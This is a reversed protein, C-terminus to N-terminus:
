CECELWLFAKVIGLMIKIPLVECNGHRLCQTRSMGTGKDVICM